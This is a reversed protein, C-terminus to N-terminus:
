LCFIYIFESLILKGLVESFGSVKIFEFSIVLVIIFVLMLSFILFIIKVIIFICLVFIFIGLVIIIIGLVFIFFGLVFIKGIIFFIILGIIIVFVLFVTSGISM